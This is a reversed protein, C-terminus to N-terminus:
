TPRRYIRAINVVKVTCVRLQLTYTSKYMYLFWVTKKQKTHPERKSFFFFNFDLVNSLSLEISLQQKCKYSTVVLSGAVSTMQLSVLQVGQLTCRAAQSYPSYIMPPNGNCVDHLNVRANDGTDPFFVEM